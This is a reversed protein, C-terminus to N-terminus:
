FVLLPVLPNVLSISLLDVSKLVGNLFSLCKRKFLFILSLRDDDDDYRNLLTSGIVCHHFIRSEFSKQQCDRNGISEIPLVVVVIV